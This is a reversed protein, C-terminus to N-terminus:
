TRGQHIKYFSFYIPQTEKYVEEAGPFQELLEQFLSKIREERALCVLITNKQSAKYGKLSVLRGEIEFPLWRLPKIYPNVLEFVDKNCIILDADQTFTYLKKQYSIEEKLFQQHAYSIAVGLSFLFLIFVIILRNIAKLNRLIEAYPILLLPIVPLMFRQQRVLAEGFNKGTDRFYYFSFFVVFFIAPLIFIWREKMKSFFPIILLFPYFLNLSLLYSIFMGPFNNISFGVAGVTMPGLFSNFFLLHYLLLPVVGIIIGILIKLFEKIRKQRILVLGLAGPILLLPYRIAIGLGLILGAPCPRNKIFLYLGFLGFICAPLDSMITRSYLLLSPHFLFLLSYIAPLHFHSLILISLLYGLGMLIYGRLFSARWHIVTFPLLLISNGPGYRSILHGGIEIMAPVSTLGARDYYINGKQLAYATSLYATEDVIGITLPYFLFYSISYFLFGTILIIREHAMLFYVFRSEGTLLAPQGREFIAGQLKLRASSLGQM